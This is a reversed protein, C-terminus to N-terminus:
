QLQGSTAPNEWVMTSVNVSRTQGRQLWNVTLDIETVNYDRSVSQATWQYAPWDTGFDGSTSMTAWEGTSVIENLKAEGLTAAESMHRANEAASLAVSIGRMAVPLVIGLLVLTAMVEILTFASKRNEIKSKRNPAANM